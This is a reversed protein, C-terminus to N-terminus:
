PHLRALHRVPHGVLSDFSPPASDVPTSGGGRPVGVTVTGSCSGGNGDSGTFSVRYVRGDGRGSREARLFVDNSRTGARADPSTDGDGFGNVPEDQSVATVTLTVTDGDADRAGILTVLNLRHNSQHLTNPSATVTSCDPPLNADPLYRALGFDRSAGGGAAVIKGDAQLAVDEAFERDGFDTYVRGDGDFTADLSGDPNYRALGFDDFDGEGAAVIKGDAQIAVGRAFDTTGFDTLVRGDGDFTADLSGDPNYRALAFDFPNAVGGAGGEGAAVIKGDTQIAADYAFDASGFFDTVVKGDGGFSADLSGDRNYRALAFDDPSLGASETFGTALIKGDAQLVVDYGLDSAGFDTLLRGDGDFSPDLSGDTNYRALAFDNPNGFSRSGGAAVIKGDAQIAVGLAQDSSDHFDMAVRGDGDFSPDLSGDPNYRALAFDDNRGSSGVGAAVIKGDAQIAIARVVDNGGLDTLVRGDGDFTPDLEGAGYAVPAFALVGLLLALVSLQSRITM